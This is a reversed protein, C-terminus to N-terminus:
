EQWLVANHKVVTIGYSDNEEVINVSITGDHSLPGDIYPKGSESVTVYFTQEAPKAAGTGLFLVMTCVLVAAFVNRKRSAPRVRLLSRIREEVATRAFYGFAARAGSRSEEWALLAMAYGSRDAPKPTAEEDCAREIDRGALVYMLWVLPNYWQACLAAAMLWKVVVDFRRIHAYEHALVYALQPSESAALSKPLYIVPFVVGSTFPSHIQDSQKVTYRRRLPNRQKWAAIHAFGAPLATRCAYRGRGHSVLFFAACVATGAYRVAPWVAASPVASVASVVLGGTGPLSYVGFPTTLFSPLLIKVAAAVWLAVFARKPLRDSAAFRLLATVGITISIPWIADPATM